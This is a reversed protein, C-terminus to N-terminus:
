TFKCFFEGASIDRKSDSRKNVFFDNLIAFHKRVSVLSLGGSQGDMRGGKLKTRTYNQVMVPKLNELEPCVEAFYPIIHKTLYIEEAEFTSKKLLVERSNHWDTLYEKITM